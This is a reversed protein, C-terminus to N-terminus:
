SKLKKVAPSEVRKKINDLYLPLIDKPISKEKTFLDKYSKLSPDMTFKGEIDLTLAGKDFLKHLDTRLVIGNAFVDHGGYRVEHIHAADLVRDDDEETILCRPSEKLVLARFRYDRVAKMHERYERAMVANSLTCTPSARRLNKDASKWKCGWTTTGESDVTKQYTAVGWEGDAAENEHHDGVWTGGDTYTLTFAGDSLDSPALTPTYLVERREEPRFDTTTIKTVQGPTYNKLGEAIELMDFREPGSEWDVSMMLGDLSDPTPTTPIFPNM